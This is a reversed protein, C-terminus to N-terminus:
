SKMAPQLFDGIKGRVQVRAGHRKHTGQMCMCVWCIIFLYIFTHVLFEFIITLTNISLEM